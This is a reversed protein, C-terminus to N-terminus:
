KKHKPTYPNELSICFWDGSTPVIFNLSMNVRASWTEMYLDCIQNLRRHVVRKSIYRGTIGAIDEADYVALQHFM